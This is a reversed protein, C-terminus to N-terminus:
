GSLSSIKGDVDLDIDTIAFGNFRGKTTELTLNGLRSMQHLETVLTVKFVLLFLGNALDLFSTHAFLKLTHLPFSHGLSNLFLM